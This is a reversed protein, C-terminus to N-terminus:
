GETEWMSCKGGWSVHRAPVSIKIVRFAERKKGGGGGSQEQSGDLACECLELIQVQEFPLALLHWSPFSFGVNRLIM